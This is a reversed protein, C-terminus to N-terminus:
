NSTVFDKAQNVTDFYHFFLGSAKFRHKLCETYYEGAFIFRYEHRKTFGYLFGGFITQEVTSNGVAAHTCDVIWVKGFKGDLLFKGLESFFRNCDNDMSGFLKILNYRETSSVEIRFTNAHGSTSNDAEWLKM